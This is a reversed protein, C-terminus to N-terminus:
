GMEEWVTVKYGARARWEYGKRGDTQEGDTGGRRNEMRGERTTEEDTGEGDTIRGHRRRRNEM